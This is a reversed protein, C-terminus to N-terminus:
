PHLVANPASRVGKGRVERRAPHFLTLQKATGDRAYEHPYRVPHDAPHWHSGPYPLTQYPGAEDETYVLLVRM